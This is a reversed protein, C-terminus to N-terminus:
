QEYESENENEIESTIVDTVPFGICIPDRKERLATEYEADNCVLVTEGQVGACRRTLVSNGYARLRIVNGPKLDFM